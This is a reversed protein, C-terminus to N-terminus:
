RRNGGPRWARLALHGYYQPQVYDIPLVLNLTHVARIQLEDSCLGPAREWAIWSIRFDLLSHSFDYQAFEAAAYSATSNPM